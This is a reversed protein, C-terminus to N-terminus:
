LLSPLTNTMCYYLCSAGEIGGICCALALALALDVTQTM